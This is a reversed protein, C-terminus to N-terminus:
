FPPKRRWSAFARRLLGARDAGLAAEDDVTGAAAPDSGAWARGLGVVLLIDPGAYDDGAAASAPLRQVADQEGTFGLHPLLGALVGTDLGTPAAGDLLLM